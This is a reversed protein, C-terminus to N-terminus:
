VPVSLILLADDVTLMADDQSSSIYYDYTMTEVNVVPSADYTDTHNIRLTNVHQERRSSLHPVLSYDIADADHKCVILGGRGTNNSLKTLQSSYTKKGCVDCYSFWDGEKYM